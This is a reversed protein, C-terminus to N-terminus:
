RQVASDGSEYLRAVALRSQALARELNDAQQYLEAVALERLRDRTDHLEAQVQKEQSRVREQLAQVRLRAQPSENAAYLAQLRQGADSLYNATTQLDRLEQMVLEFDHRTMLHGLYPLHDEGPSMGRANQWDQSTEGATDLQVSLEDNRFVKVAAQVNALEAEYVESARRYQELATRRRGLKEHAYPLALLGERVSDNMLSRGALAQWPAIASRYDGTGSYAWGYGLLARDVLPSDLRVQAFDAVAQEYNKAALHAYGSATLAKDRLAKMEPTALPSQVVREFYDIAGTLDQGAAQSAGLNYFLYYLWPSDAPLLTDYSAALQENGQRLSISARLYNAEPALEGHYTPAMRDLAAASRDLAGREWALKGLYFWARDRDSSSGPEALLKELIQGAATEMGYSLSAGGRLLEAHDGLAGLEELQRAAMLETLANFYDQQFYYFLGTRYRPPDPAQKFVFEPQGADASNIIKLELNSAGSTKAFTLETSGRYNRGESGQGTFVAVLQHEGAKVNGIYLRHTGGRRLADLEKQTYRYSAVQNGDINLAVEGLSLFNGTELSLFVALRSERPFLLEEELITLDRNLELSQQKIAQIKQDQSDEDAALATCACVLSLALSCLLQGYKMKM